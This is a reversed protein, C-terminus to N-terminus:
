LGVDLGMFEGVEDGVASSADSAQAVLDDLSGICVLTLSEARLRATRTVAWPILLGLSIAITLTNRFYFLAMVWPNLNCRFAHAGMRTNDWQWVMSRGRLFGLGFMLPASALLVIPSLVLLVLIKGTETVLWSVPFIQMLLPLAQLASWEVWTDMKQGLYQLPIFILFTLFYIGLLTSGLGSFSFQTGGFRHHNIVFRKQATLILPYSLYSLFLAMMLAIAGTRSNDLSWWLTPGLLSAIILWPLTYCLFASATKGDFGFRLGRWSSNHARFMAAKVVLWPLILLFVLIAAGIWIPGIQTCVLWIAFLGAAILRGRLIALPKGHYEFSSGQIAINGYFYRKSRVKAWASYIGLSLISLGVNVIWIRWYTRWEVGFQIPLYQVHDSELANSWPEPNAYDPSATTHAALPSREDSVSATM